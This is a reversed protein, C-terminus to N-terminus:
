EVELLEPNDHINGIIECGMFWYENTTYIAKKSGNLAARFGVGDWIVLFKEKCENLVIDGEYIGVKNKDLLCIYQGVTAPDVEQEYLGECIYHKYRTGTWRKIYSGFIWEGSDIKKGRFMIERPMKM